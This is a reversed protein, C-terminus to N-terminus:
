KSNKIKQLFKQAEAIDIECEKKILANKIVKNNFQTTGRSGKGSWAKQIITNKILAPDFISTLSTEVIQKNLDIAVFYFLFVNNTTSLFDLAKNINYGKPCSSSSANTLKSKIDVIANFNSFRKNYDAVGDCTKISSIEKESLLDEKLKKIIELDKQAVLIEIVRGRININRINAALLIYEKNEEVNKDLDNKLEQFATSAIFLKSIEPAKLIEELNLANNCISKKQSKIKQTNKVIKYFNKAFKNKSHINFLKIFNEPSNKIRNSYYKTIDSGNFSGRIHNFDIKQSSHSIKKIFTSNSLYLYNKELTVNCVIFPIADYKKLKALSIITNGFKGNKSRSFRIAFDKSYYVPGDGKLAYEEKIINELKAKDNEKDHSSISNIVEKINFM